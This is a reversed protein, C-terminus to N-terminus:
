SGGVLVIRAPHPTHVHFAATMPNDLLGELHEDVQQV